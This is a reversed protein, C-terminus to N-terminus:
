FGCMTRTVTVTGLPSGTTSLYVENITAGERLLPIFLDYSCLSRVVRQSLDSALVPSDGGVIYTRFLQGGDARIMKLTTIGDIRKPLPAGEAMQALTKELGQTQLMRLVLSTASEPPLNQPLNSLHETLLGRYTMAGILVVLGLVVGATGSMASLVPARNISEPKISRKFLLWFNALPIFAFSAYRGHGYADRSRAAAVRCLAFGAGFTTAVDICMLVWLYGGSIAPFSLAWVTQAGNAFLLILSMYVFYPVRQLESKDNSTLGAVVAGAILILLAIGRYGDDSQTVYAIALDELM